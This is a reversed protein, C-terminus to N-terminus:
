SPPFKKELKKWLLDIQERVEKKSLKVLLPKSMVVVAAKPLAQYHLRFSERIVRKIYNRQVATKIHRRTIALGIRTVSQSTAYLVLVENGIKVNPSKKLVTKFDESTLLRQQKTFRNPV